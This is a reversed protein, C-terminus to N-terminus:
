RRANSQDPMPTEHLASAFAARGHLRFTPHGTDRLEVGWTLADRRANECAVPDCCRYEAKSCPDDGCDGCHPFTLGAMQQYLAILELEVSMLGM